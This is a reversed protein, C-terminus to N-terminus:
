GKGLFAALRCDPAHGSEGRHVMRGHGRAEMVDAHSIRRCCPCMRIPEEAHDPAIDTWEVERLLAFLEEREALLLVGAQALTAGLALGRAANERDKEAPALVLLRVEVAVKMWEAVKKPDIAM